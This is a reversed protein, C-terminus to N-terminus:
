PCVPVFLAVSAEAMCRNPLALSCTAFRVMDGHQVDAKTTETPENEAKKQREILEDKGTEAERKLRAEREEDTEPHDRGRPVELPIKEKEGSM